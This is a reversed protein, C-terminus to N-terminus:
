KGYCEELTKGKVASRLHGLISQIEKGNTKHAIFYNGCGCSCLRYLIDDVYKIKRRVIKM